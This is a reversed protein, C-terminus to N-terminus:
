QGRFRDDSRVHRTTANTGIAAYRPAAFHISM